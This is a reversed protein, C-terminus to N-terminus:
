RMAEEQYRTFTVSWPEHLPTWGANILARYMKMVWGIQYPLFVRESLLTGDGDRVTVIFGPDLPPAYIKITPSYIRRLFNLEALAARLMMSTDGERIAALYRSYPTGKCGRGTVKNIPCIGCGGEVRFAICLGSTKRGGDLLVHGQKGPGELYFAVITRWKAFTSRIPDPYKREDRKLMWLEEAVQVAFMDREGYLIRGRQTIRMYM